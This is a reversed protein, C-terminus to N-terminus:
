ATNKLAVDNQIGTKGLIRARDISVSNSSLKLKAGIERVTRRTIFM